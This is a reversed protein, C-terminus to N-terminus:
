AALIGNIVDQQPQQAQPSTPLPVVSVVESDDSVPISKELLSAGSGLANEGRFQLLRLQGPENAVALPEANIRKHLSNTYINLLLRGHTRRSPEFAVVHLNM